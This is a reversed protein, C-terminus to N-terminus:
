NSLEKEIELWLTDVVYSTISYPFGRRALLGTMKKKYGAEDMNGFKGSKSRALEFALNEEDIGQLTDEIVENPIGKQFLESSLARKGRPKFRIRNEVWQAAFDRDNVLSANRLRDLM